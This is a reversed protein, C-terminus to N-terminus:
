WTIQPRRGKAVFLLGLGLLGAIMLIQSDPEPVTQTPTVVSGLAYYYYDTIQIPGVSDFQPFNIGFMYEAQWVYAEEYPPMYGFIQAPDGSGPFYGYDFAPGSHTSFYSFIPAYINPAGLQFKIASALDKALTPNGYWPTADIGAITPTPSVYIDYTVGDVTVISDARSSGSFFCSIALLALVGIMRKM